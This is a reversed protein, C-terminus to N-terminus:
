NDTNLCRNSIKDIYAEFTVACRLFCDLYFFEALPNDTICVGDPYGLVIYTPLKHTHARQIWLRQQQSLNIPVKSTGRDPLSQVYKYEVFCFGGPGSYFADPVGGHYPDNIKWKYIEKPLKKHIKNIFDKEKM